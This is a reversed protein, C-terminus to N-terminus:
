ELISPPPATPTVFGLVLVLVLGPFSYLIANGLCLILWVMLSVVLPTDSSVLTLMPQPCVGALLAGGPQLDFSPAVVYFIMVLLPLLFGVVASYFAFKGARTM